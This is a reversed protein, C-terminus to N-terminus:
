TLFCCKLGTVCNGGPVVINSACEPLCLTGTLAFKLITFQCVQYETGGTEYDEGEGMVVVSMMAVLAFIALLKPLNMIFLKINQIAKYNEAVIDQLGLPSQTRKIM